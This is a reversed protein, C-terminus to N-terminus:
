RKFTGSAKAVLEDSEDRVEVSAFGIDRTARDLTATATLHGNAPALFDVRLDMTPTPPEGVSNVAAAAAADALTCIVGGHAILEGRQMSLQETIELEAIAHGDEAEIIEHGVVERFPVSDREEAM